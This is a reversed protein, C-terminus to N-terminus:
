RTFGVRVSPRVPTGGVVGTCLALFFDTGKQFTLGIKGCSGHVGLDDRALTHLANRGAQVQTLAAQPCGPQAPPQQHVNVALCRVSQVWAAQLQAGVRQWLLHAGNHQARWCSTTPLLGQHGELRPQGKQVQLTALHRAQWPRWHLGWPVPPIVALARWLPAEPAAGHLVEGKARAHAGQVAKVWRLWARLWRGGALRQSADGDAIAQGPGGAAACHVVNVRWPIVHLTLPTCCGGTGRWEWRSSGM